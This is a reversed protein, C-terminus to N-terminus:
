HPRGDYDYRYLHRFGDRNSIWMFENRNRPFFFYDDIGASFSYVDIWGDSNSEEFM